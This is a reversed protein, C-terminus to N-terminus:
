AGRDQGRKDSEALLEGVTPMRQGDLFAEALRSLVWSRRGAGMVADLRDRLEPPDMRLNFGKAKHRDLSRDKAM